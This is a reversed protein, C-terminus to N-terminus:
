YAKLGAKVSAIEELINSCKRMKELIGQAAENRRKRIHIIPETLLDKPDAIAVEEITVPDIAELLTVPTPKTKQFSVLSTDVNAGRFVKFLNNVVRLNGTSSV